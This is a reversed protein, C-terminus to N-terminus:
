TSEVMFALFQEDFPQITSPSSPTHGPFTKLFQKLPKRKWGGSNHYVQECRPSFVSSSGHAYIAGARNQSPGAVIASSPHNPMSEYYGRAALRRTSLNM